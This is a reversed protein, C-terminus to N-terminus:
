PDSRIFSFSLTRTTEVLQDDLTVLEILKRPFDSTPGYPWFVCAIERIEEEYRAVGPHQSQLAQCLETQGVADGVDAPSHLTCVM